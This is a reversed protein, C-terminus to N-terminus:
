AERAWTGIVSVIQWGNGGDAIVTISDGERDSAEALIADKDPGTGSPDSFGNGYFYDLANPSLSHGVGSTPLTRAVFTLTVGKMAATIKPLTAVLSSTSSLAYVKGHDKAAVTFNATKVEFGSLPILRQASGDILGLNVAFVQLAKLIGAGATEGNGPQVATVKRIRNIM